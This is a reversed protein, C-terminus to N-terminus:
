KQSTSKLIRWTCLNGTFAIISKQKQRQLVFSKKHCIKFSLKNMDRVSNYEGTYMTNQQM